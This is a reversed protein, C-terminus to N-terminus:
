EAEFTLNGRYFTKYVEADKIKEPKIEMINKDLLILNADKGVAISGSNDEDSFTYSANYTVSQILQKVTVIQGSGLINAKDGDLTTRTAGMQIANLPNPPVTVPYDSASNVVIGSDFLAKMPYEKNAREEGLYAVEVEEFWGPEKCFWYPNASATLGLEGMKKIDEDAALQMHAITHRLSNNGNQKIAFECATVGSHVAGDGIAHMHVQLGLSDAKRCVENLDDQNWIPEGKHDDNSYNDLLLATKGEVVGDVFIKVTGVTFDGGKNEDMIKKANDLQDMVDEGPDIRVGAYVRMLLKGEEELEQYAPLLNEGVSNGAVMTEFYSTLGYGALQKQCYLIAKKYQDVTYDPIIKIVFSMAEDRFLGSPQGNKSNREIVGGKVDATNKDVGTLELAKSNVWYAHADSSMAVIPVSDTIEDLMEATLGGEPIKSNDWGRARVFELDPNDRYFEELISKYDEVSKGESLDAEYLATVGASKGVQMHGDIFGPLALEGDNMEIIQTNDGILEEIGSEDGVYSFKGDKVALATAISNDSDATYITGKVIIDAANDGGAGCGTMIGAAVLLATVMAILKKKM